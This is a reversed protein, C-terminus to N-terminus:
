WSYESPPLSLRHTASVGKNQTAIAVCCLELRLVLCNPVNAHNTCLQLYLLNIFVQHHVFYDNSVHLTAFINYFLHMCFTCRTPKEMQRPKQIEPRFSESEVVYFQNRCVTCVHIIDFLEACEDGDVPCAAQDTVDWLFNWFSKRQGGLDTHGTQEFGM